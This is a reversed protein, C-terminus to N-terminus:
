DTDPSIRSAGDLWTMRLPTEARLSTTPRQVRLHFRFFRCRELISGWCEVWVFGACASRCM